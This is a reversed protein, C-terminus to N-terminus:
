TNTSCKINGSVRGFSTTGIHRFTMCKRTLSKLMVQLHIVNKGIFSMLLPPPPSSCEPSTCFVTTKETASNELKKPFSTTLISPVIFHMYDRHQTSYRWFKHMLPAFMGVHSQLRVGRCPCRIASLKDIAFKLLRPTNPLNQDHFQFIQPTWYLYSIQGWKFWLLLYIM